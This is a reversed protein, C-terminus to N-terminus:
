RSPTWCRKSRCDIRHRVHSSLSPFNNKRTSRDAFVRSLFLRWCFALFNFYNCFRFRLKITFQYIYLDPLPKHSTKRYTLQDYGHRV